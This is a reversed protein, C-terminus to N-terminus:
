GQPTGAHADRGSASGAPSAARAGSSAAGSADSTSVLVATLLAGEALPTVCVHNAHEVHRASDSLLIRITRPHHQRMQSLLAIGKTGVVVVDIRRIAALELAEEASFACSVRLASDSLTRATARARRPEDDVILVSIRADSM